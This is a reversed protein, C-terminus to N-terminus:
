AVDSPLCILSKWTYVQLSTLLLKSLPAPKGASLLLAPICSPYINAPPLYAQKHHTSIMLQTMLAALMDYFISQERQLKRIDRLEFHM